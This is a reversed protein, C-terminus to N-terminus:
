KNGMNPFQCLKHSKLFFYSYYLVVYPVFLPTQNEGTCPECLEEEQDRGHSDTQQTHVMGHHVKSLHARTYVFHVPCCFHKTHVTDEFQILFTYLLDESIM